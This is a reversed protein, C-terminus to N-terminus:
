NCFHMCVTKSTSFKLGNNSVWDQANNVCLQMLRQAHRLFKACICLAFDDLFLSAESGKLVSKVLEWRSCDIPCFGMLSPLCIAEFILATFIPCYVTNGRPTTLKKWILSFPLFTHNKAFANCIYSDFRVLHDVTSRNKRFGCQESALLGKSELVWMLRNNVMREM